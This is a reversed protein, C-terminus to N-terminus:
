RGAANIDVGQKVLARLAERDSNKVADILPPREAAGMLLSRSGRSRRISGM